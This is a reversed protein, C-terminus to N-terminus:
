QAAQGGHIRDWDVSFYDKVIMQRAGTCIGFTAMCHKLFNIDAEARDWACYKCADPSARRKRLVRKDKRATCKLWVLGKSIWNEVGVLAAADTVLEERASIVIRRARTILVESSVARAAEPVLLDSPHLYAQGVGRTGTMYVRRNFAGPQDLLVRWEHDIEGATNIRTHIQLRHPGHRRAHKLHRRWAQKARKITTKLDDIEEAAEDLGNQLAVDAFSHSQSM